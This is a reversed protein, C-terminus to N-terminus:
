SQKTMNAEVPSEFGVHLGQGSLHSLFHFSIDLGHEGLDLLLHLSEDLPQRLLGLGDAVLAVWGTSHHM